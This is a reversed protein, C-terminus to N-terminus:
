QPVAPNNCKQNDSIIKCYTYLIYQTQLIYIQLLPNQIRRLFQNM